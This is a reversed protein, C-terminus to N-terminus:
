SLGRLTNGYDIDMWVPSAYKQWLDVPIDCKVPDLREGELAYEHTPPTDDTYHEVESGDGWDIYYDYVGGSFPATPFTFEFDDDPIEWTTIFANRWKDFRKSNIIYM